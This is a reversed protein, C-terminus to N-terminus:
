CAVWLGTEGLTCADIEAVTVRAGRLRVAVAAGALYELKNMWMVALVLRDKRAVLGLDCPLTPECALICDPPTCSWVTVGGATLELDHVRIDPDDDSPRWRVRGTLEGGPGRWRFTTVVRLDAYIERHQGARVLGLDEIKPTPATDPAADPPEAADVPTPASPPAADIAAPASAADGAVALEPTPGAGPSSAGRGCAALALCVVLGRVAEIM